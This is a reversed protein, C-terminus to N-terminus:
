IAEMQAVDPRELWTAFEDVLQSSASIAAKWAKVRGALDNGYRIFDTRDPLKGNPLTQVWRPDPALLLMTDLHRTAHHRWQLSKDLWGPV